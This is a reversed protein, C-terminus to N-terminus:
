QFYQDARRNGRSVARKLNFTCCGPIGVRIPRIEGLAYQAFRSAAVEGFRGTARHETITGGPDPVGGLFQKGLGNLNQVSVVNLFGQVAGSLRDKAGGTWFGFGPSHRAARLQIVSFQTGDYM